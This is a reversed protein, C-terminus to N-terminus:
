KRTGVIEFESRRNQQHSSKPCPVGDGCDNVMDKEGFGVAATIRHKPIGNQILYDVTSKARRASLIQNYASSGWSDCHSVVRIVVNPNSKLVKINESMIARADERIHDKDFDFYINQLNLDPKNKEDIGKMDVGSLEVQDSKSASEKKDSQKIETTKHDSSEASVLDQDGEETQKDPDVSAVVVPETREGVKIIVKGVYSEGDITEVTYTLQEEGVFSGNPAYVITGEDADYIRGAGNEPTSLAKLQPKMADTFKDNLLVNVAVLRGASTMAYDIKALSEPDDHPTENGEGDVATLYPNRLVRIAVFAESEFDDQNTARYSFVDNGVFSEAPYYLIQGSTADDVIASGYRPRSISTLALETSKVGPDNEFVTIVVPVGEFTSVVDNRLFSTSKNMPLQDVLAQESITQDESTISARSTTLGLFDAENLVEIIKFDCGISFRLNNSDVAAAFLKVTDNGAQDMRYSFRDGSMILSDNLYWDYFEPSKGAVITASSSLLIRSGEVITDTGVISIKNGFHLGTTCDNKNVRYFSVKYIDMGGYGGLRNSSFYATQGDPMLKFYIDNAASNIPGQLRMLDLSDSTLDVYYIDYGGKGDTRNSSFFLMTGDASVEPSDEDYLTNIPVQLAMPKSWNGKADLETKFLDLHFRETKKDLVEATFYMTKGDATISAHRHYYTFNINDPYKQPETYHDGERESFWLDNDKFLIIKRSGESIYVPAEHKKSNVKKAFEGMPDDGHAVGEYTGGTRKALNIDEYFQRDDSYIANGTATDSRSTYLMYRGDPSIVPNYESFESNIGEGLNFVHFREQKLLEEVKETSIQQAFLGSSWIAFLAVLTSSSNM